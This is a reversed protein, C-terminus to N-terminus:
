GNIEVSKVEYKTGDQELQRKYFNAESWSEFMSDLEGTDVEFVGWGNYKM